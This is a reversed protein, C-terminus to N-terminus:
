VIPAAYPFALCKIGARRATRMRLHCAKCCSEGNASAVNRCWWRHHFSYRARVNPRGDTYTQVRPWCILYKNLRELVPSVRLPARPVPKAPLGKAMHPLVIGTRQVAERRLVNKCTYRWVRRVLRERTRLIKSVM